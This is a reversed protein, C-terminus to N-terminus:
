PLMDLIAIKRAGTIVGLTVLQDLLQTTQPLATSVLDLMWMEDYYRKTAVDTQTAAILANKETNTFLGYFQSFPMGPTILVTPATESSGTAGPTVSAVERELQEWLYAPAQPLIVDALSQGVSPLQLMIDVTQRGASEFRVLMSKRVSDVSLVTYTYAITM